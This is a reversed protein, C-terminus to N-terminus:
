SFWILGAGAVPHNEYYKVVFGYLTMLDLRDVMYLIEKLTTFHTTSRDMRYLANIDRLPTTIVEWGVLASWLLPAKDKSDENSVVKIFTQDDTDADLEKLKSKPKTLRNRGLSKRRTGSSKPSSIISQNKVFHRMYTRQQGQTMPRDMMEKALKDALAQKKRKILAAMRAPFNHESMDNGLLTKSLSANAKVQAMVNIWDAETYYMASALVEQQRRQLTKKWWQLKGKNSVGAPAVSTPVDAPISTSGTPVNASTPVDAPVSTSAAPNNSAGGPPINSDVTMAQHLCISLAEWLNMKEYTVGMLAFEGADSKTNAEESNARTILNYLKAAGEKIADDSYCGAIMGFEKAAIVGDSKSTSEKKDFEIKRGAKQEFKHVRVSLMAMQWKLAIKELDLKEIQELDEYVLQQEPKTDAVFSQLIDEIVNGSRHSGTKFNSPVSYTTTSSYNLSDGYSMKKSTSTASVFASHSPGGTTSKRDKAGVYDSDSYAELVLTSERPYWFGLKPQGKLYKFIKKVAELNSTTPTVQHRSCAGVLFFTLEWMASMQFEGKMLAKFEDCWAKYVKKPYQPDVFGKPQTVYVEEDIRGYLFASKVDMVIGRADRKNKLIWKIGIAYKGTTTKKVKSRTQVALTHDGIILSQPHITNIRKTAVPIVEVTSAVNNLAAGFEDDYSSFSFIGPLPDHNGLDSLSPFRTTPEDDFFSETLSSTHVPVDDTSVMTDGSPDPISGTPVPISGPPVTKASAKKLEKQFFEKAFNLPSDDVEDGFTDKPETEQINHSPYSPIIIVQEDCDSDRPCLNNLNITYINHKRPVRLVVMSEDPLKFDKSLVLCETDEGGRFTVKGGQFVQFDDLREKNGTMSRSCGSDFVGEDEADPFPNEKEIHKGLVVQQPSLLLQGDIRFHPMPKATSKWWGSIVSSSYRRNIPVPFPRNQRGTPVSAFVKPKGTPVPQPRAHPINVKGTKTCVLFYLIEELFKNLNISLEM